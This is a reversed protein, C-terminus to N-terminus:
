LDDAPTGRRERRYVKGYSDDHVALAGRYVAGGRVLKIYGKEELIALDKRATVPSISFMEVIEQLRIRSQEEIYKKIGALREERLM